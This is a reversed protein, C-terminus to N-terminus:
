IIHLMLVLNNKFILAIKLIINLVYRTIFIQVYTKDSLQQNYYSKISKSLTKLSLIFLEKTKENSLNDRVNQRLTLSKEYVKKRIRLVIRVM